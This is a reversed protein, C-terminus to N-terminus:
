NFLAPQLFWKEEKYIIIENKSFSDVNWDKYYKEVEEKNKNM